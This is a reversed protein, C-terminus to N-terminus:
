NLKLRGCWRGASLIGSSLAASPRGNNGLCRNAPWCPPSPLGCTAAMALCTSSIGILQLGDPRAGGAHEDALRTLEPEIHKVFPCHACLFLVLVPRGALAEGGPGGLDLPIGSVQQTSGAALESRIQSLPLPTGLPLMTSPALAM